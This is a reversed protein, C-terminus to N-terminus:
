ARSVLMHSNNGGNPRGNEMSAVLLVPRTRIIHLDGSVRLILTCHSVISYCSSFLLYNGHYNIASCSSSIKPVKWMHHTISKFLISIYEFVSFGILSICYLCFELGLMPRNCQVSPIEFTNNENVDTYVGNRLEAELHFTTITFALELNIYSKLLNSPCTCPGGESFVQGGRVVCFM